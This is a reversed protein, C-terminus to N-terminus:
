DTPPEHFVARTMPAHRIGFSEIAGTALVNRGGARRTLTDEIVPGHRGRLAGSETAALPPFVGNTIQVRRM